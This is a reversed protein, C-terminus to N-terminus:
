REVFVQDCRSCYRLERWARMAGEWDATRKSWVAKGREFLPVGLQEELHFPIYKGEEHEYGIVDHPCTVVCASCGTCLGTTVVESYLEKWLATWREAM